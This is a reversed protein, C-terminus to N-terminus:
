GWIYLGDESPVALAAQVGCGVARIADGLDCGLWRESADTLRGVGCEHLPDLFEGAPHCCEAVLPVAEAGAESVRWEAGACSVGAGAEPVGSRVASGRGSAASLGGETPVMAAESVSCPLARRGAGVLLLSVSAASVVPPV